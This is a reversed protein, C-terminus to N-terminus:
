FKAGEPRNPREYYTCIVAVLCAALNAAAIALLLLAQIRYQSSTIGGNGHYRVMEDVSLLKSVLVIGLANLFLLLLSAVIRTRMKSSGKRKM